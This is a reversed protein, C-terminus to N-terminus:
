YSKESLLISLKGSANDIRAMEYICLASKPLARQMINVFDFSLTLKNARRM